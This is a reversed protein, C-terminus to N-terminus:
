VGMVGGLHKGMDHVPIQTLDKNIEGAVKGALPKSLTARLTGLAAPPAVLVLRDFTHDNNSKELYAVVERLFKTEELERPDSPPVMAHRGQGASDFARGPRDAMIERGPPIQRAFEAVPERAIALAPGRGEGRLVRARAGDAVLIWTVAKKM